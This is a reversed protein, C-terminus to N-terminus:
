AALSLTAAVAPLKKYQGIQATGAEFVISTKRPWRREFQLWHAPWCKGRGRSQTSMPALSVGAHNYIPSGTALLSSLIKSM